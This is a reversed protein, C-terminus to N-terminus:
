AAGRLRGDFCVRGSGPVQRGAWVGCVGVYMYQIEMIGWIWRGASKVAYM